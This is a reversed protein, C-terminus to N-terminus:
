ILWGTTLILQEKSQRDKLFLIVYGYDLLIHFGLEGFEDVGLLTVLGLAREAEHQVDELSLTDDEDWEFLEVYEEITLYTSM